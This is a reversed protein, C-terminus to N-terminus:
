QQITKTLRTLIWIVYTMEDVKAKIRPDQFDLHQVIKGLAEIEDEISQSKNSYSPTQDNTLPAMLSLRTIYKIFLQM